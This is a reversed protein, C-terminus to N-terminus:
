PAVRARTRCEFWIALATLMARHLTIYSDGCVLGSISFTTHKWQESSPRDHGWKSPSSAACDNHKFYSPHDFDPRFLCHRHGCQVRVMQQSTGRGDVSMHIRQHEVASLWITGHLMPCIERRVIM